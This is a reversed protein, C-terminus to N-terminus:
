ENFTVRQESGARNIRVSLPPPAPQRALEGPPAAGAVASRVPVPVPAQQRAAQAILQATAEEVLQVYRPPGAVLMLEAGTGEPRAVFREDTLGLTDLKAKLQPFPLGTTPIVKTVGESQATVAIIYGDYYWDLGYLDALRSLFDRPSLPPLRGRVRGQVADSISVRVGLNAGFERLATRLDQDIVTYQYPESPLRLQPAPAPGAAAVTALIVPLAALRLM